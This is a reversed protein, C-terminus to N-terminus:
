AYAWNHAFLRRWLGSLLCVSFLHFLIMIFFIYLVAAVLSVRINASGGGSSGFLTTTSRIYKKTDSHVM